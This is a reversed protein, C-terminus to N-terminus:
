SSTPSTRQRIMRQPLYELQQLVDEHGKVQTRDQGAVVADGQTGYVLGANDSAHESNHVHDEEGKQSVNNRPQDAPNLEGKFIIM